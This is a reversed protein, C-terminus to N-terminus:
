AETDVNQGTEGGAVGGDDVVQVLSRALQSTPTKARLALIQTQAAEVTSSGGVAYSFLANAESATSQLLQNTLQRSRASLGIGNNANLSRGADLLSLASGGTGFLTSSQAPLGHTNALRASVIYQSAGPITTM